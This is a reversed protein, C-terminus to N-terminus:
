LKKVKGAVTARNGLVFGYRFAMVVADFAGDIGNEKIMRMFVNLDEVVLDYHLPIQGKSKEVTKVMNRTAM